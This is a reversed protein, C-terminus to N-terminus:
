PSVFGTLNFVVNGAVGISGSIISNSWISPIPSPFAQSYFTSSGTLSAQWLVSGSNWVTVTNYSTSGSGLFGVGISTIYNKLGAQKGLLTTNSNAATVIVSSGTYNSTSTFPYASGTVAIPQQISGTISNFTDTIFFSERNSDLVMSGSSTLQILNFPPIALQKFEALSLSKTQLVM